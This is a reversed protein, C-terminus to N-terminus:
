DTKEAGHVRHFAELGDEVENRNVLQAVTKSQRDDTAVNENSCERCCRAEDFLADLPVERYGKNNNPINVCDRNTHYIHSAQGTAIWVTENDGM